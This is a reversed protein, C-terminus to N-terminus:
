SSKIQNLPDVQMRIIDFPSLCATDQQFWISKALHNIRENRTNDREYNRLVIIQKRRTISRYYEYIVTRQKVVSRRAAPAPSTTNKKINERFILTLRIQRVSFFIFKKLSNTQQKAHEM